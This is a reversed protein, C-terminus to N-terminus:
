FSSHAIRRWHNNGIAIYVYSSDFRLDGMSGAATSNAPAGSMNALIQGSTAIELSSQSSNYTLNIGSAAQLKTNLTGTTLVEGGSATITGDVDLKTAPANTGIGIRDTSADLRFLNVDNAGEMRIDRDSGAENFVIGVGGAGVDHIRIEAEAANGGGRIFVSEGDKASIYTDSGDSVMMYDTNGAMSSHKIGAYGANGSLACDGIHIGSGGGDQVMLGCTGDFYTFTGTGNINIKGAGTINKDNLDLDGGLQPSTDAVINSLYGADNNLLGVNQGSVLINTLTGTVSGGSRNLVLTKDGTNFVIGTTFTDTGGGGATATALGTVHGNSDLLIDQIFTSSSNDSSSAASINPHATLYSADNNLLSINNGSVLVNTLTGTVSGGDRNLVLSKNGTNFVIGTTFTNTDTVTEAATAIGTVHGNSDLLIDQIYTRGSNDSSSVSTINPHATLYGADNM